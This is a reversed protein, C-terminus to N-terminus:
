KRTTRLAYYRVLQANHYMSPNDYHTELNHTGFQELAEHYPMDPPLKFKCGMNCGYGLLERDPLSRESIEYEVRTM